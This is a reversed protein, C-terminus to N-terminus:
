SPNTKTKSCGCCALLMNRFLLMQLFYNLIKGTKADKRGQQRAITKRLRRYEKHRSGYFLGSKRLAIQLKTGRLVTSACEKEAKTVVESVIEALLSQVEEM